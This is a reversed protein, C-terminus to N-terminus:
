RPRAASTSTLRRHRAGRAARGTATWSGLCARRPRPRQPPPAAPNGADILPSNHLLHLDRPHQFTESPFVFGPITDVNGAGENVDGAGNGVQEYDSYSANLVSNGAGQEEADIDIAFGRVVSSDLNLTSTGAGSNAFAGRIPPPNAGASTVTVNTANTTAGDVTWVGVGTNSDTMSVLSDRITGTHGAGSTM